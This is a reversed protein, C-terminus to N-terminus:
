GPSVPREAALIAALGERYTPYRWALSLAAKTAANRVVRNEGWFSLAMPSMGQKAEEFEILKPTAVGLLAAAYAIVDASAAPEDDSFNLYRVGGAATGIAAMAGQAIDDVHIRSFRHGPKDIRRAAGMRLDDLVSRGPGYIGALRLIDVPCRGALGAWATEAEVRRRTRATGPAPLTAEDVAGGGRDGYVGTTSCYGIWRLNAASDLSAHHMALVPDGEDGPAATVVIHTAAAIASGAQDFAILVAGEPARRGAPDRATATVAMGADLAARAIARGTFGLGAIVLHM